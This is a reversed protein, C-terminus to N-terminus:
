GTTLDLYTCSGWDPETGSTMAHLYNNPQRPQQRPSALLGATMSLVRELIEIQYEELRRAGSTVHSVLSRRPRGDVDPIM